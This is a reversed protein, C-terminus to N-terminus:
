IEVRFLGEHLLDKQLQVQAYQNLFHPIIALSQVTLSLCPFM